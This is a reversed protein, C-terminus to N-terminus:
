RIVAGGNELKKIVQKHIGTVEEETLTRDNAQYTISYTLARKGKEMKDGTYEDILEVNTILKKDANQIAKLYDIALNREPIAISIDLKVAPYKPLEKYKPRNEVEMEHLAEIDVMAAIVRTKIDFNKLIQPHVEALHGICKGRLILDASRGPHHQPCNHQSPIITFGLQEVIGQLDRFEEGIAIIILQDLEEHGEGEGDQESRPLATKKYVRSLEFLRFKNKYRLNDAATELTRPLLSTRMLSMDSSIPNMVEIMDKNVEIGTKELLEPGLFAFTKIENFGFAVLDNRMKRNLMRKKNIPIPTIEMKPMKAPINNYGYVRAIDEIIDAELNTDALRWSPVTVEYGEKNEKAEFGLDSLIKEVTKKPIELGILRTIQSNRLNIKRVEPKINRVDMVKSAVKANPCLELILELCRKLGVEALEDDVKKEYIIGADSVHGLGRMAKRIMTPHYVPAHLWLKNTKSNVGSNFGGMIGCLDFIEHGDDFVIIDEFLEHQQEDLTVVKEGKKSKRMVWKKGPIQDLDFAHTPMGLELMVYNTIDVINSIPRIGCASLRQKMWDPSEQIEIGTLYVGMYRSCAEANEIKIEIPAPSNNEPMKFEKEKKWKGLGIAVFERAFEKQSFLDGRNTIAHNDVDLVSDNLELAEALPMGVKLNLATLDVIEKETKKPFIEELGVEDCACIMGFSEEGRIKAKEMKVVETGHWRVVAGLKAFVVLMGEHLNSGGCVVQFEENGDSVTTLQLADANPHKSLKVVKGVVINELHDGQKELTEVEAIRETVLDKIKEHDPETIEIFDQLWNLSIKM